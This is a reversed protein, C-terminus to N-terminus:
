VFISLLCLFRFELWLRERLTDLRPMTSVTSFNPKNTELYVLRNNAGAAVSIYRCGDVSQRYKFLSFLSNFSFLAPWLGACLEVVIFGEM